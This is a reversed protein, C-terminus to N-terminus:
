SKLLAAGIKERRIQMLRKKLASISELDRLLTVYKDPLSIHRADIINRVGSQFEGAQRAFAIMLPSPSGCGRDIRAASESAIIRLTQLSASAAGLEGLVDADPPPPGERLADALGTLVASMGGLAPGAMVIDEIEGLPVVLDGWASGETGLVSDQGVLCDQLTISGHPSPKLFNLPLPAAVTIGAAARPVMFATFHKQPTQQGTAAVVIFVGAIPGNTLYTKAGTLAYGRAHKRAETTLLKPRAGRGPESVAFSFIIRGEAAGPLYHERQERTGFVGIVYHAIIQQYLWSVALGLNFGSQVFAEGAGLLDAYGGGTGGYVESIGIRFLGAEGMKRWLDLPFEGGTQLDVRCAIHEAAFASAQERASLESPQEM